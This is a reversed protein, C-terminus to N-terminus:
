TVYIQQQFGWFKSEPNNLLLTSLKNGWVKAGMRHFEDLVILSYDRLTNVHFNDSSLAQYTMFDVSGVAWYFQQKIQDLIYISPALITKETQQLKSSVKRSYLSKGTGTPQVICM